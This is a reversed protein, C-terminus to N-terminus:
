NMCPEHWNGEPTLAFQDFGEPVEAEAQMPIGGQEQVMRIILDAEKQDRCAYVAPLDHPTIAIIEIILM